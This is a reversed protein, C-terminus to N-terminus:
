PKPLVSRDTGQWPRSLEVIRKGRKVAFAKAKAAGGYSTTVYTIALDCQEVMWRNRRDIAFRPPATAAAEPYLTEFPRFYEQQAASPMRSLVVSYQIHPYISSLERLAALVLRDFGGENGVLFCDGGEGEILEVLTRKLLECIPEFVNRHGLFAVTM